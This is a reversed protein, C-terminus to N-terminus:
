EELKFNAHLTNIHPIHMGSSDFCETNNKCTIPATNKIISTSNKTYLTTDMQSEINAIIKFTPHPSELHTPLPPSPNPTHPPSPNPISPHPHPPDSSWPNSHGSKALKELDRMNTDFDNYSSPTTFSIESFHFALNPNVKMNSTFDIEKSEPDFYLTRLLDLWTQQSDADRLYRGATWHSIRFPDFFDERDKCNYAFIIINEKKAIEIKAIILYFSDYQAEQRQEIKLIKSSLEKYTPYGNEKMIAQFIGDTDQPSIPPGDPKVVSVREQDVSVVEHSSRIGM